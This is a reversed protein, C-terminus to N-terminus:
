MDQASKNRAFSTCSNHRDIDKGILRLGIRKGALIVVPYVAVSTGISLLLPLPYTFSYRITATM